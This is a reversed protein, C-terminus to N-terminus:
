KTESGGDNNNNFCTEIIIGNFGDWVIPSQLTFDINGSNVSPTYSANAYVTNWDYGGYSYLFEGNMTYTDGLGIRIQFNQLVTPTGSKIIFGLSTITSNTTLGLATLEEATYLYTTKQAGVSGKFPTSTANDIDGSGIKGSNTNLITPGFKVVADPSGIYEGVITVTDGAGAITPSFSFIRPKPLAPPPMPEGQANVLFSIAFLLLLLNFKNKM